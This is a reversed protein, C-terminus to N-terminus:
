VILSIFFLNFIFDFVIFGRNKPNKLSTCKWHQQCDFIVHVTLISTFTLPPILHSCQCHHGITSYIPLSLSLFLSFSLFFSIPRNNSGKPCPCDPEYVLVSPCTRQGKGLYVLASLCMPFSRAYNQCWTFPGLFRGTTYNPNHTNPSPPIATNSLLSPHGTPSMKNRTERERGRM